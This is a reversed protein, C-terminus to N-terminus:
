YNKKKNVFALPSCLPVIAFLVSVVAILPSIYIMATLTAIITYIHVIINVKNQFIDKKIIEIDVNFLSMYYGFRHKRFGVEDLDIIGTFLDDKVKSITTNIYLSDLTKSICAVIFLFLLYLFVKLCLESLSMHYIGSVVNMVYQLLFAVGIEGTKTLIKFIIDVVMLCNTSLSSKKM